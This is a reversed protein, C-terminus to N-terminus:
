RIIQKIKISSSSYSGESISTSQNQIKGACRFRHIKDGELSYMFVNVSSDGIGEHSTVNQQDGYPNLNGIMNNTRIDVESEISEVSVRHPITGGAYNNIATNENERILNNIKREANINYNLSTIELQENMDEDSILVQGFSKLGHAFNIDSKTFYRDTIKEITGYIDYSANALILKFPQLSFNFSTLFMNNFSYRGVINDNIPDESIKVKGSAPDSLEILEFLRDVNNPSVFDSSIYFSINLTGKLNGVPAFNVFETKAGMISEDFDGYVKEVTMQPSISLEASNVMLEKGNLAIKGDEFRLFPRAM